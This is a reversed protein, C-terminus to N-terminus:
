RYVFTLRMSLETNNVGLYNFLIYSVSSLIPHPLIIMLMGWASLRSLCCFLFYTQPKVPSVKEHMLGPVKVHDSEFIWIPSCNKQMNQLWSYRPYVPLLCWNFLFFGVDWCKAPLLNWPVHHSKVWKVKTNHHPINPSDLFLLPCTVM